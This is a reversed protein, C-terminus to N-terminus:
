ALSVLEQVIQQFELVDLEGSHDTDYKTLLEKIDDVAGGRM